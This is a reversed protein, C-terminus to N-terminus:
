LSNPVCYFDYFFYYGSLLLLPLHVEKTLDKYNQWNGHLYNQGLTSGIGWSGTDIFRSPYIGQIWCDSTLCWNNQHCEDGSIVNLCPAVVVGILNILAFGDLFSTTSTTATIKL